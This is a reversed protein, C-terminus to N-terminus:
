KKVEKIGFCWLFWEIIFRFELVRMFVYMIHTPQNIWEAGTVFLLHEFSTLFVILVILSLYIHRWKQKVVLKFDFRNEM